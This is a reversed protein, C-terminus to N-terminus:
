PSKIPNAATQRTIQSEERKMEKLTEMLPLDKYKGRLSRIFKTTVSKADGKM